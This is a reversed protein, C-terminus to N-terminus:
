KKPIESGYRIAHAASKEIVNKRKDYRTIMDPSAWGAFDQIARDAVQHDRANSIATARCSHPSVRNAIGALKAYKKVIYFIMSPDLPKDLEKGRNNRIPQFVFQGAQHMDRGVIKFYYQLAEIVTPVLVMLRESNGKGRLKMVYHGRELSINSTQLECVESRRLGCYFLVTLIARHLAGTRTHLDPAKLIKVVEEDTFGITKSLKKPNLFRVNEAPSKLILNDDELWRFFSRLSALLRDVTTHELGEALLSEKYAVVISRDLVEPGRDFVRVHLFKVFRKLDKGYSRQTHPSRQDLLFASIAQQIQENPRVLHVTLLQSTTPQQALAIEKQIEPANAVAGSPANKRSVPKAKPRSRAIIQTVKTRMRRAQALHRTTPKTRRKRGFGKLLLRGLKM